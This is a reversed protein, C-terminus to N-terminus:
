SVTFNIGMHKDLLTQEAQGKVLRTRFESLV